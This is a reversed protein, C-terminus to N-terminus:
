NALDANGHVLDIGQLHEGDGWKLIVGRTSGAAQPVRVLQLTANEIYWPRKSPGRNADQAIEYGRDENLHQLLFGIWAGHGVILAVSEREGQLQTDLGLLADWWLLIRNVFNPAPEVDEPKELSPHWRKGQMAGMFQVDAILFRGISPVIAL